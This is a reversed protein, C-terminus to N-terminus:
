YRWTAAAHPLCRCFHASASWRSPVEPQSFSVAAMGRSCRSGSRSAGAKRPLAIHCVLKATPRCHIHPYNTYEEHAPELCTPLDSLDQSQFRDRRCRHSSLGRVLSTLYGPNPAVFTRSTCCMCRSMCRAQLEHMAELQPRTAELCHYPPREASCLRFAPDLLVWAHCDVSIQRARNSRSCHSEM